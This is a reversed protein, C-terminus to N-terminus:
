LSPRNFQHNKSTKMFPLALTIQLQVHLLLTALDRLSDVLQALSELRKTSVLTTLLMQVAVYFLSM